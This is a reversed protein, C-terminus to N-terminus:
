LLSLSQSSSMWQRGSFLFWFFKWWLFTHWHLSIPRFKTYCLAIEFSRPFCIYAVRVPLPPRPLPSIISSPVGFHKEPKLRRRHSAVDNFSPTVTPPFSTDAQLIIHIGELSAKWKKCTCYIIHRRYLIALLASWSLDCWCGFRRYRRLSGLPGKLKEREFKFYAM